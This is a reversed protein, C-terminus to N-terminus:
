GNSRGGPQFRQTAVADVHVPPTMTRALEIAVKAFAAAHAQLEFHKRGPLEYTSVMTPPLANLFAHIYASEIEEIGPQKMM